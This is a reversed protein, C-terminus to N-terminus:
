RTKHTSRCIYSRSQCVNKAQPSSRMHVICLLMLNLLLKIVDIIAALREEATGKPNTMCRVNLKAQTATFINEDAQRRLMELAIERFSRHIRGNEHWRTREIESSQQRGSPLSSGSQQRLVSGFDACISTLCDDLSRLYADIDVGTLHAM